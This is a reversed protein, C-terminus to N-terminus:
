GNEAERDQAADIERAAADCARHFEELTGPCLLEAARAALAAVAPSIKRSLAKAAIKETM